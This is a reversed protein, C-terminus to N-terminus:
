KSENSAEEESDEDLSEEGDETFNENIVSLLYDVHEQLKEDSIEEELKSECLPCVHSEVVPEEKKTKKAEEVKETKVEEPKATTEALKPKRFSLIDKTVSEDLQIGRM